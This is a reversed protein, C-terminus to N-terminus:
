QYLKKFTYGSVESLRQGLTTKGAGNGGCLLIKHAM